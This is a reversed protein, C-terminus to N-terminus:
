PCTLHSRAYEVEKGNKECKRRKGAKGYPCHLAIRIKIGADANTRLCLMVVLQMLESNDIVEDHDACRERTM